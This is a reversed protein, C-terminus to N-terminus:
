EEVAALAAPDVNLAFKTVGNTKVVDILRVVQAHTAAGDAAIIAQADANAKAVERCRAAIADENAPEGNLYLSGDQKLALSLTQELAEGASAAKPLDVEISPKVIYTSAVMFIILLVLMIDVLPTVNIGTIGDDDQQM